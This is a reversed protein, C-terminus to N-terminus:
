RLFAGTLQEWKCDDISKFIPIQWSSKKQKAMWVLIYSVPIYRKYILTLIYAMESSIYWCISQYVYDNRLEWDLILRIYKQTYRMMKGVNLTPIQLYSYNTNPHVFLSFIDWPWADEKNRM